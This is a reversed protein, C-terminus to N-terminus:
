SSDNQDTGIHFADDLVFLRRRFNISLAKVPIDGGTKGEKKTTMTTM